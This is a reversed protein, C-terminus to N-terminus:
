NIHVKVKLDCTMIVSHWQNILHDTSILIRAQSRLRREMAHVQLIYGDRFDLESKNQKM